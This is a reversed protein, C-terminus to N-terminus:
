EGLARMRERAWTLSQVYLDPVDLASVGAAAALRAVEDWRGAEYARVMELSPAYPGEGRLLADRVEPALDIRALLEELPVRLLVDLMSFIGVMFYAGTSKGRGGAEGVLECLRARQVAAHVRESEVGTEAPISTVFLLALWRHLTERGVMRVAHGISQIGRGGVSASNVIRLLKYTLLPDTRFAEEIDGDTADPDRLLNMLRIAGAQEVSIERRSLIEPRSFYYGQFLEFGLELCLDRVERTEVREALLRVGFPRLREVTRALEDASANLVDLKVVEACELFPEAAERPVFDDLALRYGARTLERCAAVAEEDPEVGELLEIMVTGRDLLEYLRETLMERTFNIFATKGGTVRDLGFGLLSHLLVEHSMQRQTAGEARVADGSRRYLLEYAQLQDAADFIPQRAVFVEM